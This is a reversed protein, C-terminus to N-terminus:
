SRSGGDVDGNDRITQEIWDMYSSVRTYVGPFDTRGCHEKGFSVIGALYVFRDRRPTYAEVTLPGGSDGSCSDVNIGGTACLQGPGIVYGQERYLPVCQQQALVHLMAKRKVTSLQNNETRGWGSVDAASSALQDANAGRRIPLCVPEVHQLQQWDIPRELRLLAIDHTMNNPEFQPHMLQRDIGVQIHPPACERRGNWGSICDPDTTQDWEGLRAGTLKRAKGVFKEHVCHAATLLWRQAIFAAGCIHQKPGGTDVTYELLTTWPFELLGTVNGGYVRLAFATGCHPHQPLEDATTPAPPVTSTAVEVLRERTSAANTKNDIRAALDPLIGKQRPCCIQSSLHTRKLRALYRYLM